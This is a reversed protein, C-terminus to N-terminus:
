SVLELKAYDLHLTKRGHRAFLVELSKPSVIKEVVGEGFFPHRVRNGLKISPASSSGSPSAPASSKLPPISYDPREEQGGGYASSQHQWAAPAPSQTLAHPLEQLFPSPGGAASSSDYSMVEQPYVLYLQKRARTAAVYLLRREEERHAPLVAQASPFRGEALNIIFVTDWELGKASHITSLVLRKGGDEEVAGAQPPDLSADDLFTQLETYGGMVRGLEDLDRRRRPYDDHYLREFIPEYYDMIREFMQGMSMGPQRLAELMELLDTLGEKWTKGAPYERLAALPDDASKVRSLINQATKPGVKDLQM